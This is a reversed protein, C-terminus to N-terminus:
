RRSLSRGITYCSSKTSSAATDTPKIKKTCSNRYEKVHTLTKGASAHQVDSQHREVLIPQPCKPKNRCVTIQRSQEVFRGTAQRPHRGTYVDQCPPKPTSGENPCDNCIGRNPNKHHSVLVGPASPKTPIPQKNSPIQYIVRGQSLASRSPFSNCGTTTNQHHQRAPLEQPPHSACLPPQRQNAPCPPQRPHQPSGHADSALQAAVLPHQPSDKFVTRAEYNLACVGRMFAKQMQEALTEREKRLTDIEATYMDVQVQQEALKNEYETAIENVAAETQAQCAKELRTKWTNRLQAHWGKLAKTQVQKNRYKRAIKNCFDQRKRDLVQNKWTFLAKTAQVREKLKEITQALKHIIKDKREMSKELQEILQRNNELKEMCRENRRRDKGRNENLFSLFREILSNKIRDVKEMILQDRGLSSHNLFQSFEFQMDEYQSELSSIIQDPSIDSAVSGSVDSDMPCVQSKYKNGEEYMEIDTKENFFDMIDPINADQARDTHSRADPDILKLQQLSQETTENCPWKPTVLACKLLEDYEDQIQSSISSGRSLNQQSSPAKSDDSSSFM